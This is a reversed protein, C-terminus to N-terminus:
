IKEIVRLKASRSRPNQQIEETSPVLPKGTLIRGRGEQEEHKCFDKVVRDELSHFSIVVMRGGPSLVSFARPLAEKLSQLEDNVLMRLAQFVKTAPHIKEKKNRSSVSLILQSLQHTTEIKKQKRVEVIKKAIRKANYEEGLTLFLESLEKEHLGNILDGATVSQSQNMRMDLPADKMFSFGRAAEELQHSSLGLDFLVGTPQISFSALITEIESFNGQYLKLTDTDVELHGAVEHIGKKYKQAVHRIADSDLDIGIIKGGHSLIADTHGGGGLNCDVYWEDKKVHLYTLVEGLMVPIHYTNM